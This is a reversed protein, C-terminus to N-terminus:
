QSFVVDKAMQRMKTNVTFRQKLCEQKTHEYKKQVSCSKFYQLNQIHPTNRTALIRIESQQATNQLKKRHGNATTESQTEEIDNKKINEQM